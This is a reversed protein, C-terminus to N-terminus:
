RKWVTEDQMALERPYAPRYTSMGSSKIPTHQGAIVMGSRSKLGDAAVVLDAM